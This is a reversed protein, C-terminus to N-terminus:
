LQQLKDICISNIGGLIRREVARCWGKWVMAGYGDGGGAGCIAVSYRRDEGSRTWRWILIVVVEM